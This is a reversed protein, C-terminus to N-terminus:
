KVKQYTNGVKGMNRANGHSSGLVPNMKAKVPLANSVMAQKKSTTFIAADKPTCNHHFGSSGTVMGVSM